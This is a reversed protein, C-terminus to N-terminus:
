RAKYVYIVDGNKDLNKPILVGSFYKYPSKLSNPTNWQNRIYDFMTTNHMIERRITGGTNFGDADRHRFKKYMEMGSSIDSFMVQGKKKAIFLAETFQGKSYNWKESLGCCSGNNCKEKHHADSVYFRLGIKKCLSEMKDMFPRKVEYNLRFYGASVSYKKYMEHIDFGVIKSMEEYRKLVREDARGELCFFETSVASAGNEKAKKILELYEDNVNSLGIIFPRLRLTVEGGNLKGITKMAALRELPSPCGKEMAKAKKEDLCIISFKVNWLSGAKEFLDLYRKDKTWWVSKTSFCIPYRKELFFKLLELTVGNKREYEDFQDSLGGWQFTIRQKIYENFQSNPLEGKFLRKVKEVSVPNAPKGQYQYETNGRVENLQGL